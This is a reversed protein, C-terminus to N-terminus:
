SLGKYDLCRSWQLSKPFSGASLLGRQRLCIFNLCLSNLSKSLRWPLIQQIIIKIVFRNVFTTLFVSFNQCLSGVCVCNMTRASFYNFSSMPFTFGHNQKIIPIVANPFPRRERPNLSIGGM